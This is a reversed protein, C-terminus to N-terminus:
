NGFKESPNLKEFACMVFGTHLDILEVDNRFRKIDILAENVQTNSYRNMTKTTMPVRPSKDIYPMIRKAGILKLNYRDAVNIYDNLVPHSGKHFYPYWKKVADIKEPQFIRYHELLEEYTYRQCAYPVFGTIRTSNVPYWWYNVLFFINGGVELSQSIKELFKEYDFYELCLYATILDYKESKNYFDEKSSKDIFPKTFFPLNCITTHKDLLNGFKESRSQKGLMGRIKWTLALRQYYLFRKVKDEKFTRMDLSESFKTLKLAKYLAAHYGEAGGVDLHKDWKKLLGIERFWDISMSFTVADGFMGGYSLYETESVNYSGPPFSQTQQEIYGNLKYDLNITM